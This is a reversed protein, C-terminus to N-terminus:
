GLTVATIDTPAHPFGSGDGYRSDHGQFAIDAIVQTSDADMTGFVTYNPKLATDAFVLFFQSGNTNPGSNAMAVTGAPYATDATLEDDFSYGPRGSGTGTPDGCQLMFLGTSAVRHCSTDTYYGQRALSEFSAVACPAKARDLTITVPKGGLTLTATTTGTTLVTSGDPPDVPRAATGSVRYTCRPGDGAAPTPATPNSVACSALALCAALPVLVLPKM